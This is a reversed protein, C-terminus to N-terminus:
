VPRHGLDKLALNLLTKQQSQPGTPFLGGQHLMMMSSSSLMTFSGSPHGVARRKRLCTTWALGVPQRRRQQLWHEKFATWCGRGSKRAYKWMFCHREFFM